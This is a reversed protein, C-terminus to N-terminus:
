PVKKGAYLRFFDIGALMNGPASASSNNFAIIVTDLTVAHAFSGLHVWNGTHTAAWGDYTTGRQQIGLFEYPDSRGFYNATQGLNTFAPVAATTRTCVVGTQSPFSDMSVMFANRPDAAQYMCLWIEGDGDVVSARRMNRTGRLWLFSDSPAGALSQQIGESTVGYGGTGYGSQAQRFYWGRRQRFTELHASGGVTAYPDLVSDPTSTKSAASVRTWKSALGDAEFEDDWASPAAPKAVLWPASGIISM